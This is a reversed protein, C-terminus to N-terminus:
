NEEHGFTADPEASQSEDDFNGEVVSCAVPPSDSSQKRELRRQRKAEQKAKKEMERQRKAFTNQNKAIIGSRSEHISPHAPNSVPGCRHKRALRTFM